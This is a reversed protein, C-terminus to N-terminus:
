DPRKAARINDQYILPGTRRRAAMGQASLERGCVESRAYGWVREKLIWAPLSGPKLWLVHFLKPQFPDKFTM